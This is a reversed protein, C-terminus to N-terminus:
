SQKRKYVCTSIKSVAFGFCFVKWWQNQNITKGRWGPLLLALQELPEPEVWAFTRYCAAILPFVPLRLSLSCIGKGVCVYPGPVETCNYAARM